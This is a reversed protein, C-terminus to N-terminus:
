TVNYLLSESVDKHVIEVDQLQLLGGHDFSRRKLHHWQLGINRAPQQHRISMSSDFLLKPVFDTWLNADFQSNLILEGSIIMM